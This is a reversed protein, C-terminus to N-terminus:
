LEREGLQFPLCQLPEGCGCLFPMPSSRCLLMISPPSAIVTEHRDENWKTNAGISGYKTGQPSPDNAQYAFLRSRPDNEALASTLIPEKRGMIWSGASRTVILGGNNGMIQEQFQPKVWKEVLYDIYLIALPWDRPDDM